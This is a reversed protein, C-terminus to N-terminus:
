GSVQTAAKARARARQIRKRLAWYGPKVIRRRRKHVPKTTPIPRQAAALQRIAHRLIAADLNRPLDDALKNAMRMAVNLPDAVAM